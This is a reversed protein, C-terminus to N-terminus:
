QCISIILSLYLLAARLDDKLYIQCKRQFHLFGRRVLVLTHFSWTYYYVLVLCTVRVCVKGLMFHCKVNPVEEISKADINDVAGTNCGFINQCKILVCEIGKLYFGQYDQFM